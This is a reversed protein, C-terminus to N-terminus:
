AIFQNGPSINDREYVKSWTITSQKHFLLLLFFVALGSILALYVPLTPNENILKPAYSAALVQVANTVFHAIISTWLSGSYWFMAGLIIGLLMRPLFGLFQFHLASFLAASIIIGTWPSRTLHIIIRQLAGRFLMEECIAPFLAIVLINVLIDIPSNIKLFAEIDKATDNEMNVLSQPLPIRQNLEGLWFVLPFAMLMCFIGLIYMNAKDAKKFGLFYFYRGRFTFVAYLFAPLLFFTLSSAAQLWKFMQIAGPKSLDPQVTDEGLSILLLILQPSFVALFVGLQAWPSKIRLHGIM